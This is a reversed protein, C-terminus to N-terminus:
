DNPGSRIGRGAKVEFEHGAFRLREAAAADTMAVLFAASAIWQRSM